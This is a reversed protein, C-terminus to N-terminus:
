NKSLGSQLSDLANKITETSIKTSDLVTKGYHIEISAFPKPLYSKNWAKPIMWCSNTFARVPIIPSHTKKALELIGEKVEYIPGKPGDVALAAQSDKKVSRILGLLGRAGARSSSGRFVKYGLISLVKAMITGDSSLSSLVALSRFAYYGVLVLEDGHWHAYLCSKKPGRKSVFNELVEKPGYERIRWTCALPLYICVILWPLIVEKFFAKM